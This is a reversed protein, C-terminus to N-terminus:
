QVVVTGKMRPHYSCSYSFTGKQGFAHAYKGKPKINGSGFSKDDAVVSHDRDDENRWIVTDGVSVTIQAPSFSLDRISVVKEEAQAVSALLLLILAVISLRCIM